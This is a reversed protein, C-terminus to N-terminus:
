MCTPVFVMSGWQLTIVCKCPSLDHPGCRDGTAVPLTGGRERHAGELMQLLPRRRPWECATPTLSCGALISRRGTWWTRGARAFSGSGRPGGGHCGPSGPQTCAPSPCCRSRGRRCGGVLPTHSRPSTVGIHERHHILGVALAHWKFTFHRM